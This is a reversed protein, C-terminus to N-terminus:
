RGVYRFASREGAELLPDIEEHEAAMAELTVRAAPDAAEDARRLLLPWLVADEGAHHHHLVRAFMEWRQHLARWTASDDVPTSSAAAKFNQLDCRFAHHMLYMPTLDAPGAPASAQGPFSVQPLQAGQTTTEM